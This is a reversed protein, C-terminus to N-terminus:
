PSELCRTAACVVAGLTWNLDNPEAAPPVSLTRLVYDLYVARFCSSEPSFGGDIGKRCYNEIDSEQMYRFADTRFWRLQGASQVLGAVGTAADAFGTMVAACDASDWDPDNLGAGWACAPTRGFARWAEDQGWGLFSRSYIDMGRGKVRVKKVGACSPCPFTVQVSGGGMEAIGFGADAQSESQALWAFLGEEYGTLTRTTVAVGLAATIKENLMKWILGAAKADYQEALRMGATGYVAAAEVRCETQWDFAPWRPKGDAGAPGDRRIGSLAGAIEEVLMEADAMTKGRNGRVPDALAGSTPGPHRLWGAPTRQYVFLRTKSSGADYIVYCGSNDGAATGRPPASKCGAAAIAIATLLLVMLSRGPLRMEHMMQRKWEVIGATSM